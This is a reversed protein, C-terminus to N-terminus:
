GRGYGWREVRKLKRSKRYRKGKKVRSSQAKADAETGYRYEKVPPPSVRRLVAPATEEWFPFNFPIRKANYGARRLTSEVYDLSDEYGGGLV